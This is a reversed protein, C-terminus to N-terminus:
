QMAEAYRYEGYYKMEAEERCKVADQYDAFSGLSIRKGNVSIRVRWKKEKPNWNVGKIGSTNRISRNSNMQNQAVIVVRLNSKRNDLPNHNIHDVEQIDNPNMLFRHLLYQKNTKTKRNCITMSVFNNHHVRWYYPKIKDYDEKDFIFSCGKNDYAIGYEGSLDFDNQFRHSCGCSFTIGSRLSAGTIDAENGCECRCHWRVKGCRDNNVRYLVTWKGVKQNVMDIFNSISDM